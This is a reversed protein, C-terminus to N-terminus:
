AETRVDYFEELRSLTIDTVKLGDEDLLPQVNDIRFQDGDECGEYDTIIAYQGIRVPMRWIRVFLDIKENAGKASYQRGYGIVKEEFDAPDRVPVLMEVPMRGNDAINQLDCITIRGAEKM